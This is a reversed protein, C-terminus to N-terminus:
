SKNQKQKVNKKRYVVSCVVAEPQAVAAATYSVAM